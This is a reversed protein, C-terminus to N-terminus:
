SQVVRVAKGGDCRYPVGAEIGGEGVYVKAICHRRGDWWQLLLIGGDGATATGGVGATATGGVIEHGPARAALYDTASKRDGCFVVVGRPFKVKLGIDAWSGDPIEVVLWRANADWSLLEGDGEGWLLGHLGGGCVPDPSWDPAAVPGSEPWRFRGGYSTMDAACTRLVLASM